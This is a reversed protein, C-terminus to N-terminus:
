ADGPSRDPTHTHNLIPSSPHFIPQVCNEGGRGKDGVMQIGKGEWIGFMAKGGRGCGKGEWIMGEGLVIGEGVMAGQKGQWIM